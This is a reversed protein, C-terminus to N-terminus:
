ISIMLVMSFRKWWMLRLKRDKRPEVTKPEDVGMERRNLTPSRWWCRKNMKYPIQVWIGVIAWMFLLNLNKRVRWIHMLHLTRNKWSFIADPYTTQSKSSEKTFGIPSVRDILLSSTKSRDVKPTLRSLLFWMVIERAFNTRVTTKTKAIFVM